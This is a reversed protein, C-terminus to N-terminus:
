PDDPADFLAEINRAGHVVRVIDVGDEIERFFILYSGVPLYRIGHAIDPRAPCLRPNDALYRIKEELSDIVRDAAILNDEAIYDWIDFLDRKAQPKRTIKRM